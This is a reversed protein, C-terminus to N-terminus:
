REGGWSALGEQFASYTPFVAEREPLVVRPEGARAETTAQERALATSLSVLAIEIQDDAPERTVLRQLALGPAILVRVLPNRGFKASLRIVEYSLGAIPLLLVIKLLVLLVQNLWPPEALPPLLPQVLMYLLVGVVIVFLLFATGCRPHFRSKARANEVTLPERAEHTAIAKHEAGHYAFVRRIEKLRSIAALYGIFLLLKIAGDVVHFLVGSVGRGGVLSDLLLAAVHPVGKFVLLAFLLTPILIWGFSPSSSANETKRRGDETKRGGSDAAPPAGDTGETGGPSRVVSSPSRQQEEGEAAIRASYSLASMGNALSEVLVVGGRLFPWRLFRLREWISRWPQDRVVIEGRSNRVAVALCSPGRMMVGEIVAQGGVSPRKSDSM